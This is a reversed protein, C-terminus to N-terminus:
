ADSWPCRTAAYPQLRSQRLTLKLASLGYWFSIIRSSRLDAKGLSVERKPVTLELLPTRQRGSPIHVRKDESITRPHLARCRASKGLLESCPHRRARHGVCPSDRGRVSASASRRPGSARMVATSWFPRANISSTFSPSRQSKGAQDQLRRSPHVYREEKRFHCPETM